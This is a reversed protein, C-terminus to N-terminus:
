DLMVSTINSAMTSVRSIPQINYLFINFQWMVSSEDTTFNRTKQKFRLNIFETNVISVTENTNGRLMTRYQLCYKWTCIVLGTIQTNDM